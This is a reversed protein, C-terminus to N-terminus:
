PRKARAITSSEIRNQVRGTREGTRKGLLLIPAAIAISSYTGIVIGFSMAFNFGRLSLSPGGFIYMILVVIFTTFSTLITRSLTQNISATIIQPNIDGKRRNERIRDFVVITDNLSYGILTLFAAIMALDIKFDGILLSKGIPTAAIYTCATIVGLTICVDHILAVIAAFGYRVNGFRLWIYAVIAFLSLITAILARTKAEAGVSPDIQTVRPLSTELAAAGTVKRKENEAYRQWEEQSLERFGAEPPISLYVFSEVTKNPDVENLGQGLLKYNYWNLDRMDPKFRLDMLRGEIEELTAPRAIRCVIKIGGLFDALEPHSDTLEQSLKDVSVIEPELNQQMELKGAFAQSIADNVVEDVQPESVNADPFAKSLLNRVLVKNVQSTTVEFSTPNNLPTVLLSGLRGGLEAQAKRITAIASDATHQGSKGFAITTTTKNTETTNIEFQRSSKGVRYVSAAAIAPNKLDTGVKHIMDEVHQRDMAEKLNIQVSTGGTFEIDYKSNKSDDRTFFVVLGGAILLASIAVFLPRLGMWNVKPERILRLMFLHDKIIRRSLLIDFIVRTVFLATFMSSAIGLMLVIAFGKIEESAVWYLIAATLLTTLNADFITRFARQYGNRIAIRLSSGRQQEERIREFILVNADVSMGITLILGAIGPLTFTARLLAMTALVFLLNLLLALDAISGALVYYIAMCLIVTVLGIIGARIGQDRNDAGISPGITKVSIPQEILRAPLSGANLKTVMDEVETQTFTGEIIGDRGIRSKLNPASIAIGDLLICLPRGINKGSVRSFLNGGREDLRFGIARRGMSDQTPHAKELKWTKQEGASHLMVDGQKNSALVYWKDGFQAVIAPRGEEDACHWDKINEIECWVYRNDSAYKPGKEKLTEVYRSMEATDVEPHGQTPLIRFELIGAGKLMRQLDRADDLRGRFKRYEDFARVVEGIKEKRDSFRSELEEIAESRRASKVPMELVANIQEESLNLKDLGRKAEEYKINKGTEPNTLEEVVGAWESYMKVYRTLLDLNGESPLYEKLAEKLQEENLKMWDARRLKIEELSLGALTILNEPVKLQAALNDRKKRLEEREDYVTALNNLITLRETFGKAFDNFDQARQEAPKQLSRMIMAINLNDALLENVAHEYRQRKQRAEVSALPMQIEFRTSGQPRWVLNQINAPDIRRRLVTIMREAMDKREAVDLGQTDIEYILSTGGALDIGPKLTKSPPLLTWLAVIVLVVIFVVKATLNKEM